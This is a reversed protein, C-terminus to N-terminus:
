CVPSFLSEKPHHKLKLIIRISIKIIPSLNFRFLFLELNAKSFFITNYKEMFHDIILKINVEERCALVMALRLLVFIFRWLDININFHVGALVARRHLHFSLIFIEVMMEFFEKFRNLSFFIYITKSSISCVFM